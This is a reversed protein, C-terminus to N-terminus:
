VEGLDVEPYRKKLEEVKKKLDHLFEATGAAEENIIRHDKSKLIPGYERIFAASREGVCAECFRNWIYERATENPHAMDAEYFRYDRLEDMMIEYAPFYHISRPFLLELEYAAAILRAKSVSNEHPDDRLHRVPSVTLICTLSPNKDFLRSLVLRYRAVIEDISLLRREFDDHPLRHCNAVARKREHHFYVAATGFTLMLVDLNEIAECARSLLGNMAALAKEPDTHAFRSHHDFSKWLGEHFFLDNKDFATKATLRDLLDAISFPNFLIGAPNSACTFRYIELLSGMTAAFCSGICLITSQHTIPSPPKKVPVVTMFHPTM